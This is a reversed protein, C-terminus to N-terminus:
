QFLYVAYSIAGVLTSGVVTWWLVDSAWESPTRHTHPSRWGGRHSTPRLIAWM